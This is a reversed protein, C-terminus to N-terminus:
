KQLRFHFSCLLSCISGLLALGLMDGTAALELALIETLAKGLMKRDM